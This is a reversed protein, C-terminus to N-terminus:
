GGNCHRDASTLPANSLTSPASSPKVLKWQLVAFAPRLASTAGLPAATEISIRRLEGGHAAHQQLLEAQGPLSVANIV